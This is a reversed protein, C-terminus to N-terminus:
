DHSTFFPGSINCSSCYPPFPRQPPPSAKHPSKSKYPRCRNCMMVKDVMNGKEKSKCRQNGIISGSNWAWLAIEASVDQWREPCASFETPLRVGMTTQRSYRAEGDGSKLKYFSVRKGKQLLDVMNNKGDAGLFPCVICGMWSDCSEYAINLTDFDGKDM